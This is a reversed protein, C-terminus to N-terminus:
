CRKDKAKNRENREQVQSNHPITSEGGLQDRSLGLITNEISNRCSFSVRFGAWKNTQSWVFFPYITAPENKM